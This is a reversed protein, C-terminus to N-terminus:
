YKPRKSDLVSREIRGIRFEADAEKLQAPTLPKLESLCCDIMLRDEPPFLFQDSLRATTNATAWSFTSPISDMTVGYILSRVVMFYVMQLIMFILRLANVPNCVMCILKVTASLLHKVSQVLKFPNLQEASLVLMRVLMLNFAVVIHFGEALSGASKSGKGRACQGKTEKSSDNACAAEDFHVHKTVKSTPFLTREVMKISPELAAPAYSRVNRYLYLVVAYLSSLGDMKLVILFHLRIIDARTKAVPAVKEHRACDAVVEGPLLSDAAPLLSYNTLHSGHLPGEFAVQDNESGAALHRPRVSSTVSPAGAARVSSIVRPGGRFNM